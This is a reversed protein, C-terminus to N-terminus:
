NVQLIAKKVVGKPQCLFAITLRKCLRLLWALGVKQSLNAHENREQSSLVCMFPWSWLQALLRTQFSLPFVNWLSPRIKRNGSFRMEPPKIFLSYEVHVAKAKSSPWWQCLSSYLSFYMQLYQFGIRLSSNSPLSVSFYHWMAKLLKRLLVSLM